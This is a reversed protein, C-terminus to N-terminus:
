QGPSSLTLTASGVAVGASTVLASGSNEPQYLVGTFPVKTGSAVISGSFYGTQANFLVGTVAATNSVLRTSTLTLTLTGGAMSAATGSLQLTANGAAPPFALALSGKAPAQYAAGEFGLQVMSSEGVIVSAHPQRTKTASSWGITGDASNVGGPRSLGVWGRLATVARGGGLGYLPFQSNAGLRASASFSVGTPSRGAITVVGNSAVNMTAFGETSVTGDSLAPPLLVTYRGKEPAANEGGTFSARPAMFPVLTGQVLVDGSVTQALPDIKFTLLLPGQESAKVTVSGGGDDRLTGHLPYVIGGLKLSATFAGARSLNLMVSGSQEFASESTGVLANYLGAGAMSSNIITVSAAATLGTADTVTYNFTDFGQFKEGPRYLVTGDPKWTVQGASAAGVSALRLPASAASDNALVDLAVAQRGVTYVTESVAVPGNTTVIVSPPTAFTGIAGHYIGTSNQAVLEYEYTVGPTLGSVNMQLAQLGSASGVALSATSSSLGGVGYLFYVTTDVGNPDVGGSLIAATSTIGSAVGTTVTPIINGITVTHDDGHVTGALNSASMRYHYIGANLFSVYTSVSVFATGSTQSITTSKSGYNTTPGFDFWVSAATGNPNITGNLYASNYVNSINTAIGTLVTPLTVATTTVSVVNSWDSTVTTATAQIRFRYATGPTLGTVTYATSASTLGASLNQWVGSTGVQEQLTFGTQLSTEVWSLHVSTTDFSQVALVPAPLTSADNLSYYGIKSGSQVVLLSSSSNYASVATAVPMSFVAKGQAVDFIQTKGFAYKGDPTASYIESKLNATIALSSDFAIGNWFIHQGDESIVLSTSGYYSVGNQGATQAKLTFVDGTVDYKYIAADSIDWDGHYYFQGGPAFAGAGARVFDTAMRSGSGGTNFIAMDVWQDEGEVVLRGKAGASINFVDNESYGIGDFPPVAYQQVLQLTSKDLALLSGLMWNTVYIRGEANQIAIDTASSGVRV